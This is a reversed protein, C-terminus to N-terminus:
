NNPNFVDKVKDLFSKDKEHPEEFTEEGVENPNVSSDQFDRRVDDFERGTKVRADRAQQETDMCVGNAISDLEDARSQVDDTLAETEMRATDVSGQLDDKARYADAMLDDGEQRADGYADDWDRKADEKAAQIDAQAEEVQQEADQINGSLREDASDRADNFDNNKDNM